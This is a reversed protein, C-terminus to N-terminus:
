HEFVAGMVKAETANIKSLAATMAPRDELSSALMAAKLRFASERLLIEADKLKKADKALATDLSATYMEVAHLALAGAASDGSALARNAVETSNRVLQAYLYCQDRLGAHEAKQALAQLGVADVLHDDAAHLTCPALVTFALTSLVLMPRALMPRTLM